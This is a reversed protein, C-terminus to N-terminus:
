RYAIVRLQQFQDAFEINQETLYNKVIESKAVTVIEIELFEIFDGSNDILISTDELEYIENCKKIENSLLSKIEFPIQHAWLWDFFKYWKTNNMFGSLNKQLIFGNTNKIRAERMEEKGTKM